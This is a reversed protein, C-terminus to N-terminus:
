QKLLLYYLEGTSNMLGARDGAEAGTGMFIDVRGAGKIASGTDHDLVYRSVSRFELEGRANAYPIQTRILALAGPPMLSKDTAISREATVPLGLSGTAPTGNTAEFFVFSRNRPLYRNMAQPSARFYSILAPLNIDELRMIGDRYIESGVSTYPWDTKGAYGVTMVSGDTLQLRASGQVHVLFAEFRDRLWVLELGRLPSKEGLLGDAGELEWRTPHPRSWDAFDSPLRYLPYRYEATPRASAAYTPEFYGTFAVTGEGDEGVSKYLVFERQVAAQLEAPTQSSLLLVRFRELSGMVRDRTIGAVPYERYAAAASPTQLYELSRDLAELLAERDALQSGWRCRGGARTRFSVARELCGGWIQEDWGLKDGTVLEEPGIPRLPVSMGIGPISLAMSLTLGLCALTKNMLGTIERSSSISAM